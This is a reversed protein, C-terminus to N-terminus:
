CEIRQHRMRLLKKLVGFGHVTLTETDEASVSRVFIQNDQLKMDQMKVDQLKRYRLKMDPLKM